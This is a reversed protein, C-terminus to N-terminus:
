KVRLTMNSNSCASFNFDGKGSMFRKSNTCTCSIQRMNNECLNQRLQFEAFLIKLDLLTAFLVLM